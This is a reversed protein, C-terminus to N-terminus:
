CVLFTTFLQMSVPVRNTTNKDDALMMSLQRKLEGWYHALLGDLEEQGNYTSCFWFMLALDDQPLGIEALQWDFIVCKEVDDENDRWVPDEKM